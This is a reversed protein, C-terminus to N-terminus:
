RIRYTLNVIFQRTNQPMGIYSWYHENFLNNLKFGLRFKAQDYFLSANIVKAAPITFTNMDDFYSESAYNGGFGAGFGEAFGTPVRYSMWLNAIHAPSGFPTKGEINANSRVYRNHNYGYGGIFNFGRFPNIVLEGEFGKSVQKGDQINFAQNSPDQRIIDNVAIHYYSLTSSIRGNLLNLKIGGETQAALMPKFTNGNIDAGSQNSFGSMYNGFVAIGDKILQYVLGFKPSLSTQGYDGRLTGNLTTGKNNFRDLRLSAMAALKDTINLVDSAYVAFASEESKQTNFNTGALIADLKARSFDVAGAQNVNIQDYPTPNTYRLNAVFYYYNVGVVLRNRLRGINFDGNFNQQISTAIQRQPKQAMVARVISTDSLWNAYLRYADFYETMTYSFNTSSTWQDSIKYNAQAYYNTTGVKSSLDNSSLSTEYGLPLDKFNNITFNSGGFSFNTPLFRTTRYIEADFLLTLRDNVVYSFSPAILFNREYGATQFSNQTHYATNLRFLASKEENLPTNFDAAIRSLGWSGTSFSLDTMFYDVPKKTVRNMLGGFTVLSGNSAGFLTASPGKIAEVKEINAPDIAVLTYATMGNRMGNFTRFGRLMSQNSSNNSTSVNGGTINRLIDNYDTVLQEEFLEKPIVNYVQPNELNKLPMRAVYATEKQSFKNYASNIVVERLQQEDEQLIFDVLYSDSHQVEIKREQANMGVLSVKLLYRGTSVQEIRYYGNADTQTYRNDGLQVSVSPAPKGDRTQVSGSISAKDQLSQLLIQTGSVKAAALDSGFIEKLITALKTQQYQVQIHRETRLLKSSYSFSYGTQMGLEDLLGAIEGQYNISIARELVANQSYLSVPRIIYLFLFIFTLFYGKSTSALISKM